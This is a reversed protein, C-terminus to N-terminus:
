ASHHGLPLGRGKQCCMRMCGGSSDTGAEIPLCPVRVRTLGATYQLTCRIRQVLQQGPASVHGHLGGHRHRGHSVDSYPDRRGWSSGRRSAGASLAGVAPAATRGHVGGGVQLSCNSHQLSKKQELVMTHEDFDAGQTLQPSTAHRTLLQRANQEFEGNLVICHAEDLTVSAINPKLSAM